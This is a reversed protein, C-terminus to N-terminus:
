SSVVSHMSPMALNAREVDLDSYIQLGKPSTSAPKRLVTSVKNSAALM